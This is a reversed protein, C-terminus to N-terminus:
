KCKCIEPRDSQQISSYLNEISFRKCEKGLGNDACEYGWFLGWRANDSVHTSNIIIDTDVVLWAPALLGIFQFILSLFGCLGFTLFINRNYM